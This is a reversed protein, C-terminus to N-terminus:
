GPVAKMERILAHVRPSRSWGAGSKLTLTQLSPEALTPGRSVRPVYVPCVPCVQSLSAPLHPSATWSPDVSCSEWSVAWVHWATQSWGPFLDLALAGRNEMSDHVREGPPRGGEGMGEGSKSLKNRRGPGSCLNPRVNEQIHSTLHGCLSDCWLRWCRGRQQWCPQDETRGRVQRPLHSIEMIWNIIWLGYRNDHCLVTDSYDTDKLFQIKAPLLFIPNNGPSNSPFIILFLKAKCFRAKLISVPALIQVMHESVSAEFFPNM